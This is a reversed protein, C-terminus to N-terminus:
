NEDVVEEFIEITKKGATEWSFKKAQEMGKSVLENYESESMKLVKEIGSTISDTDYPDIYIAANGGVEPLSAVDSIVVPTGMAMADLVQMGFGEWYSPQVLLKAQKYLAEKHEEKIYGTFNVRDELGLKEVARFIEDFMWGKVGSIVLSYHGKLDDPLRDYAKVLSTLNKSPKLTGLYLIYEGSINYVAMTEKADSIQRKSDFRKKDYGHHVVNIKNSDVNYHKLIDQKTAESVAIIKTASRISNATWYKLQFFDKKNFQQSFELYGLDHATFVKPLPTFIPLYHSPSFFLDFKKGTMLEPSLKSIIWFKRGKLIKYQWWNKQHPLDKGPADKLYIHFQHKNKNDTNQRYFAWLIEHAYQHVGVKHEINAENGDIALKM